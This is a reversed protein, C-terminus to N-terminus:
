VGRPFRLNITYYFHVDNYTVFFQFFECVCVCGSFVIQIEIMEISIFVFSFLIM